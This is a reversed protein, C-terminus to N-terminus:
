ETPTLDIKDKLILSIKYDSITLNSTGYTNVYISPPESKGIAYSIQILCESAIEAAVLNKALHRPTLLM